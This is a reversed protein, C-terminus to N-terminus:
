RKHMKKAKEKLRATKGGAMLGFLKKQKDSLSRGKVLGHKLIKKAKEALTHKPM